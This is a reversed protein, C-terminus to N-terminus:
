QARAKETDDAMAAYRQWDYAWTARILNRNSPDAAIYAAALAKVFSGGYKEMCDITARETTTM